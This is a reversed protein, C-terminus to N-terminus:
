LCKIWYIKTTVTNFHFHQHSMQGFMPCISWSERTQLHGQVPSLQTESHSPHCLLLTNKIVPSQHTRLTFMPHHPVYSNCETTKKTRISYQHVALRRIAQVLLWLGRDTQWTRSENELLIVLLFVAPKQRQFQPLGKLIQLLGQFELCGVAGRLHLNATGRLEFKSVRGEIM